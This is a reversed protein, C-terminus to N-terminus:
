KRWGGIVFQAIDREAQKLFSDSFFVFPRAPIVSGHGSIGGDNHIGAWPIPSEAILSRPKAKTTVGGPLGGLLSM